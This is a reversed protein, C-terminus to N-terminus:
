NQKENKRWKGEESLERFKDIIVKEIPALASEGM